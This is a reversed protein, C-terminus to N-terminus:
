LVLSLKDKSSTLPMFYFVSTSEVVSDHLCVKPIMMMHSHYYLQTSVDYRTMFTNSSNRLVAQIETNSWFANMFNTETRYPSLFISIDTFYDVVRVFCKHKTHGLFFTETISRTHKTLLWKQIWQNGQLLFESGVCDIGLYCLMISFVLSFIALFWISM